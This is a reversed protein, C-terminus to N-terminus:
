KERLPALDPDTLCMEKVEEKGGGDSALRLWGKAEDLRGLQCAYCAMNYRMLWEEPFKEHVSNIVAYAEETRRLEHLSYALHIWGYPLGPMEETMTQAFSIAKTWNGAKAFIQWTVELVEPHNKFEDETQEM